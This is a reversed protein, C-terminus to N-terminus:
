RSSLRSVVGALTAIAQDDDGSYQEADANRFVNGLTVRGDAEHALAVRFILIGTWSRHFLLQDGDRFVFWKDEMEQPVNGLLLVSAPGAELTQEYALPRLVPWPETKWDGHRAARLPPVHGLMASDYRRYVDDAALWFRVDEVPSEAAAALAARSAVYSDFGAGLGIAPIAISRCGHAAAHALVTRVCATLAETEGQKGGQWEPAVTHVVIRASLAGAHTTKAEGVRCGGLLALAEGLGPGAARNIADALAGGASCVIADATATTIDGHELSIV